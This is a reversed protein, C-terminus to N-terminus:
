ARLPSTWRSGPSATRDARPGATPTTRGPCRASAPTGPASATRRRHLGRVGQQANSGATDMGYRRRGELVAGNKNVRAAPDRRDTRVSCHRHRAVALRQMKGVGLEHGAEHVAVRVELQRMETAAGLMVLGREHFPNAADAVEFFLRTISLEILGRDPAHPITPRPAHGA